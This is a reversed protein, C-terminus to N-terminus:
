DVLNVDHKFLDKDFVITDTTIWIYWMIVSNYVYSVPSADLGSFPSKYYMVLYMILTILYLIVGWFDSTTFRIKLVSIEIAPYPPM